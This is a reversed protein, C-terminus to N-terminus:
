NTADLWFVDSCYDCFIMGFNCHCRKAGYFYFHHHFIFFFIVVFVELELGISTAGLKARLIGGRGRRM